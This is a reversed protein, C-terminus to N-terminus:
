SPSTTCAFAGKAVAPTLTQNFQDADRKSVYPHGKRCARCVACCNGIHGGALTVFVTSTVRQCRHCYNVSELASSNM